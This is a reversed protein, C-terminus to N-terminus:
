PKVRVLQVYLEIEEIGTIDVLKLMRYVSNDDWILCPQFRNINKLQYKCTIVLKFMEKDISTRSCIM